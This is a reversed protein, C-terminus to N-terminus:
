YICSNHLTIAVTLASSAYHLVEVSTLTRCSSITVSTCRILLLAMLTNLSLLKVQIYDLIAPEDWIPTYYDSVGKWCEPCQEKRPWAHKYLEREQM